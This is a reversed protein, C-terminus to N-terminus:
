RILRSIKDNAIVSVVLNEKREIGHKLKSLKIPKQRNIQLM